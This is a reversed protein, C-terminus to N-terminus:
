EPNRRFDRRERQRGKATERKATCDPCYDREGQRTWGHKEADRLLVNKGQFLAGLDRKCGDCRMGLYLFEVISM